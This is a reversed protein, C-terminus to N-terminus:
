VTDVSNCEAEIQLVCISTSDCCKAFALSYLVPADRLPGDAAYLGRPTAGDGKAPVHKSGAGKSGPYIAEAGAQQGDGHGELIRV